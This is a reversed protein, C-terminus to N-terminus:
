CEALVCYFTMSDLTLPLYPLPVLSYEATQHLLNRLCEFQLKKVYASGCLRPDSLFM